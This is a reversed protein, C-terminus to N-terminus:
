LMRASKIMHKDPLAIQHPSVTEVAITEGSFNMFEVEYGASNGHVYVVTGIDGKRLGAAPLDETLMVTELEPIM